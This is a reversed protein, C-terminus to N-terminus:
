ADETPRFFESTYRFSISFDAGCQSCKHGVTSSLGVKENLREITKLIKNADRMPLTRAFQELKVLEVKAGDITDIAMQIQLVIATNNQAGSSKENIEKQRMAIQDMTRPTQYKLKIHKGTVPLDIELLDKFGEVDSLVDIDELNLDFKNTLKCKPCASVTKYDSGYTVMRLRHLLFLYDGFCMDYSSIGPKEVMCDDIIDCLVKYPTDTYGLRKMEEIVTMSRLKVLPNVPKNYIEGRSPLTFERAMTYDM